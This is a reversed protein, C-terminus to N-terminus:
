LALKLVLLKSMDRLELCILSLNSPQGLVDPSNMNCLILASPFMHMPLHRGCIQPIKPYVEHRCKASIHESIWVLQWNCYKQCSNDVM